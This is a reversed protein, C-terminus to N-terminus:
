ATTNCIEVNNLSLFSKTNQIRKGYVAAWTDASLVAEPVTQSFGQGGRAEVSQVLINLWFPSDGWPPELMASAGSAGGEAQWENYEDKLMDVRAAYLSALLSVVAAEAGDVELTELLYSTHEPKLLRRDSMETVVAQIDVDHGQGQGLYALLSQQLPM